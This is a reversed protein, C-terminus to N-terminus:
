QHNIKYEAQFNDEIDKFLPKNFQYSQRDAIFIMLNNEILFFEYLTLSEIQLTNNNRDRLTKAILAARLPLFNM